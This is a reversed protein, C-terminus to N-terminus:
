GGASVYKENGIRWVIITLIWLVIIWIGQSMFGLLVEHNTMGGLIDISFSVTYMFPLFRFINETTPGFIELPFIGGSLIIVLIRFAEFFYSIEYLWFAFISLIFFIIFNIILSFLIALCFMLIREMSFSYDFKESFYILIVALSLVIIGIQSAKTGMFSFMKYFVYGIPRVIYKDLSGDKIEGVISYEFGTRVFRSIIAAMTTYFVMQAFTFGYLIESEASNYISYWLFYQLLIQFVTSLMSLLFNVRYAAASEFGMGFTKVYKRISSLM